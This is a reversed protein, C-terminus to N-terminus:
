WTPTAYPQESSSLHHPIRALPPARLLHMSYMTDTSGALNVFDILWLGDSQSLVTDDFVARGVLPRYQSAWQPMLHINRQHYLCVRSYPCPPTVSFTNQNWLCCMSKGELSSCLANLAKTTFIRFTSHKGRSTHDFVRRSKSGTHVSEYGFSYSCCGTLKYLERFPESSCSHEGDHRTCSDGEM